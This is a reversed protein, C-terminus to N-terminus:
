VYQCVRGRWSTRGIEIEQQPHEAGEEHQGEVAASGLVVRHWLDPPLLRARRRADPWQANQELHRDDARDDEEGEIKGIMQAPDVGVDDGPPRSVPLRLDSSCVDSSWDSIRM